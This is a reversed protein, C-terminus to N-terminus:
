RMYMTQYQSLRSCAQVDHRYDRRPHNFRQSGDGSGKRPLFTDARPDSPVPPRTVHSRQSQADRPTGRHSIIGAASHQTTGEDLRPSLAPFLPSKVPAQEGIMSGTVTPNPPLMATADFARAETGAVPPPPASKRELGTSESSAIEMTSPQRYRARTSECSRTEPNSAITSVM